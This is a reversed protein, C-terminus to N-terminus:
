KGELATLAILEDVATVPDGAELQRQAGTGRALVDRLLGRMTREDDLMPGALDVLEKLLIRAEVPKGSRLDIGPGTLGHRAATWIAAAGLQEPIPAAERGAVLESLANGVLGQILMAQLVAEDATAVADAVRVEVTSYRPSPRALWFTMAEDVLVGCEVLRTVMEDYEGASGFWPTLGSGPLRSQLVMRWSVYGTNQGYHLPSNASLALLTPLWMSLHNIVGVALDRDSVGVHVHCGSVQYDALLKQYTYSIRDFREGSTVPMSPDGLVATGSSVLALDEKRAAEALARRGATLQARLEAASTCVGTAFELQVSSLERHVASGQPLPETRAHKAVAGAREVTRRSRRDVLLFEEEVGVTHTVGISYGGPSASVRYAPLRV